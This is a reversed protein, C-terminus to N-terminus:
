IGAKQQMRKKRELHTLIIPTKNNIETKNTQRLRNCLEHVIASRDQLKPKYQKERLMAYM